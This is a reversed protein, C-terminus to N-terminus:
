QRPTGFEAETRPHFVCGDENFNTGLEERTPAGQGDKARQQIVEHLPQVFILIVSQACGADVQIQHGLRHPPQLRSMDAQEGLHGQLMQFGNIAVEEMTVCWGATRHPGQLSEQADLFRKGFTSCGGARRHLPFKVAVGGIQVLRTTQGPRRNSTMTDCTPGEQVEKMEVFTRRLQIVRGATAKQDIAPVCAVVPEGLKATLHGHHRLLHQQEAPADRFDDGVSLWAGAYLFDFLGGALGVRVLKNLGKGFTVSRQHTDAVNEGLDTISAPWVEVGPAVVKVFDGVVLVIGADDVLEAGKVVTDGGPLAIM